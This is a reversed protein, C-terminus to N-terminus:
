AARERMSISCRFLCLLLAAEAFSSSAALLRIRIEYHVSKLYSAYPNLYQTSHVYIEYVCVCARSIQHSHKTFLREFFACESNLARISRVHIMM